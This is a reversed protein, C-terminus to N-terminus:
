KEHLLKEFEKKFAEVNEFERYVSAFRVFAIEDIERLMKMVDEGIRSTDIIPERGWKEELGCLKERVEELSIPRKACAILISKELKQRDYPETTEDRKKVMLNATQVREFTTFRFGCNLCERRRRISAGHESMRSDVVKSDEHNCSPCRM